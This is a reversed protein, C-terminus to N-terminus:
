STAACCRVYAIVEQVSLRPRTLLVLGSLTGDRSCVRLYKRMRILRWGQSNRYALPLCSRHAKLEQLTIPRRLKRDFKIELGFWKPNEPDSKPDFYKHGPNLASIDPVASSFVSAIGVIAPVKCSSCV